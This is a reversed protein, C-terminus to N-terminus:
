NGEFFWSIDEEKDQWGIANLILNLPNLFAKEYQTKYDIRFENKVEIPCKNLFGIVHSVAINPEMIYCFKIKDGDAIPQYQVLKKKAIFTNFAKTAQIGIPVGKLYDKDKISVSRPFAIEEISMKYFESKFSEILDIVQENSRTSFILDVAERLKERVVKPTSSRVIEVGRIKRKPKEILFEGEDWIKNMIYKKKAVFITTDAICEPEMGITLKMM